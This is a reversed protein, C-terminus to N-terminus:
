SKARGAVVFSQGASVAAADALARAVTPHVGVRNQHVRRRRPAAGPQMISTLYTKSGRPALSQERESTQMMAAADMTCSCLRSLLLSSRIWDPTM